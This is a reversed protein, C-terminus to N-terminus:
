NSLNMELELTTPHYKENKNLSLFFYFKQLCITSFRILRRTKRRSIQNQETRQHGVFLVGPMYPNIQMNDDTRGNYISILSDQM